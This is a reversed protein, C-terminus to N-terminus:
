DGVQGACAVSSSLRLQLLQREELLRRSLEPVLSLSRRAARLCFLEDKQAARNLLLTGARHGRRKVVQNRATLVPSM